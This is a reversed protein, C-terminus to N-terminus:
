KTVRGFKKESFAGKAFDWTGQFHATWPHKSLGKPDTTCTCHITVTNKDTLKWKEADDTEFIYDFFENFHEPKAKAFDPQLLKRVEASLDLPKAPKEGAVSIILVKEPGWKGGEILLATSSDKSWEAAYSGHGTTLLGYGLPIETVIRFPKLEVAYLRPKKMEVVVERNPYILAFKDNPSITDPLIQYDKYEAPFPAPPKPPAPDAEDAAFVAIPALTTLVLRSLNM